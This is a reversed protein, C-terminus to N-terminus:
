LKHLQMPLSPHPRLTLKLKREVQAGPQLTWSLRKVLVVMAVLMEYQAFQSGICMHKGHLFPIFTYPKPNVKRFTGDPQEHLWRMPDFQEANPWSKELRQVLFPAVFVLTGKPIEYTKGDHEWVDDEAAVRFTIAAPPYLRLTEQCIGWLYRFNSMSEWTMRTLDPCLRDVEERAKVAVEPHQSLLYFAWSLANSTTEHGAILFTM